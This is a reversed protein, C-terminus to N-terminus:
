LQELLTRLRALDDPTMVRRLTRAASAPDAVRITATKQRYGAKVLAAHASMEDALVAAHLGPDDKRLRRLAADRSNGVPRHTHVNNVGTPNQLARDLMDSAEIDAAVIRKVLAVSVGLGETPREVLFHEFREHRATGGSPTTFERWMDDQLVQKLLGPVLDLSNDGHTLASGLTSIVAWSGPTM